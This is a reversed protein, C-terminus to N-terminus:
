TNSKRDQFTAQQHGSNLLFTRLNNRSLGVAVAEIKTASGLAKLGPRDAPCYAAVVLFRKMKPPRPAVNAASFPM